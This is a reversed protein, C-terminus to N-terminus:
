IPVSAIQANGSEPIDTRVKVHASVPVIKRRPETKCILNRGLGYNAAAISPAVIQADKTGDIAM